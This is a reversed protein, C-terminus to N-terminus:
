TDIECNLVISKISPIFCTAIYRKFYNYADIVTNTHIHRLELMYCPRFSKNNKLIEKNLCTNNPFFFESHQSISFLTWFGTLCSVYTPVFQFNLYVLTRFLFARPLTKYFSISNQLQLKNKRLLFYTCM